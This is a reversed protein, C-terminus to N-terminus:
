VPLFSFKKSCDKCIVISVVHTNMAAYKVVMAGFQYRESCEMCAALMNEPLANPLSANEAIKAVFARSASSPRMGSITASM